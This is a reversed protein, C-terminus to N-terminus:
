NFLEELLAEMTGTYSYDELTPPNSTTSDMSSSWSYDEPTYYIEVYANMAPYYLFAEEQIHVLEVDGTTSDVSSMEHLFLKATGYITEATGVPLYSDTQIIHKETVTTGDSTETTTSSDYESVKEYVPDFSSEEADYVDYSCRSIGLFNNNQRFQTEEDNSWDVIYNDPM